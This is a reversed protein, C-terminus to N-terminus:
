MKIFEEVQKRSLDLNDKSFQNYLEIIRNREKICLLIKNKIEEIDTENNIVIYKELEKGKFYHHNNGTICPVGLEMSELPLMPACESATVYLNVDNQAMRQMLEERPIAKDVGTVEIDYQKSFKVAEDNLPVMDMVANDLLKIAAMQSYMNKRWNNCKAAYIGIKIKNDNRKEKKVNPVGSVKNSIFFAKYGQKNYFEMLSEKCTGMVSIIGKKHLHIIELNRQWGYSDLIQSHSGHWFTKLKINKNRKKLEKALKEWGIAFASFIVQNINTEIITNAVLKIDKKRYIENCDIPNEFLERTSSTVGSWDGNHLVIYQKDKCKKINELTKEFREMYEPTIMAMKRKHHRYLVIPFLPIRLAHLIHWKVKSGINLIKNAGSKGFIRVLMMDRRDRAPLWSADFYHIMCTNDTFVNNDRHFSYPYFYDRPYITIGHELTQVKNIGRKLDLNDLIESIMIPISFETIKDPEFKKFSRYKKLLETTLFSGKEKEYWVASNIYKDDEFGLFTTDKELFKSIDKTVEMDTDFYIGGYENLAKTRTYDAVFAWKKNEYAGKIFPCEELDVNEESWKIIKYDPLFKKWSKMCKKALKPLPKDGFWCYHIIKEM